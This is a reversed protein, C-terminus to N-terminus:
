RWSFHEHFYDQLFTIHNIHTFIISDLYKVVKRLFKANIVAPNALLKGDHHRSRATMIREGDETGDKWIRRRPGQDIAPRRRKKVMLELEQLPVKTSEGQFKSVAIGAGSHRLAYVVGDWEPGKAYEYRKEIKICRMGPGSSQSSANLQYDNARFSISASVSKETLDGPVHEGRISYTDYDIWVLFFSTELNVGKRICTSCISPEFALPEDQDLSVDHISAADLLAAASTDDVIQTQLIDEGEEHAM